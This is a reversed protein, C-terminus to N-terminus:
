VIEPLSKGNIDKFSSFRMEILLQDPKEEQSVLLLRTIELQIVMSSSDFFTIILAALNESIGDTEPDFMM